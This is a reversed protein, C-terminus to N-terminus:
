CAPRHPAGTLADIVADAAIRHAMSSWHTDNPMYVDKMGCWVADRFRGVLAVQNLGSRRYFGPLPSLARLEARALHDAYATAKDPAAMFLFRTHGNGQVRNQADILTCYATDLAEATTFQAKRLEDDYVLLRDASRSSFLDPRTLALRVVRTTDIGFIERQVAKWLFNAAQDFDVEPEMDRVWAVPRANVPRFAPLAPLRHVELRCHRDFRGLREDAELVFDRILYREVTELILLRPPARVFVPHRLLDELTMDFRSVVVVSLGTRQALFNTWYAGPDTQGEPNSSFSDGLVVVDFPRDYRMSALPPSFREQPQNWGYDAETYGGPRTLDGRLPEQTLALALMILVPPIVVAAFLLNYRRSDDPRAGSRKAVARIAAMWGSPAWRQQADSSGRETAM